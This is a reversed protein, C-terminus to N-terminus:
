ELGEIVLVAEAKTAAKRERKTLKEMAVPKARSIMTPVSADQIKAGSRGKLAIRYDGIAEPFNDDKVVIAMKSQKPSLEAKFLCALHQHSWGSFSARVSQLEIRDGGVTVNIKEPLSRLAIKQYQKWMESMTLAPEVGQKKLEKTLTLENMALTYEVLVRDRKVSIQVQREVAGDPLQHGMASARLTLLLLLCILLRLM